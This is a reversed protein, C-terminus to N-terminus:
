HKPFTCSSGKFLLFIIITMMAAANAAATAVKIALDSPM